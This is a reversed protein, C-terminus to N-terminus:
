VLRLHLRGHRWCRHYQDCGHFRRFVVCQDAYFRVTLGSAPQTITASTSATCGNADKVTVTYTGAALGTRDETDNVGAIDSWDYTYAGTGGAATIDIAGTSAGFCLVNTQTFTVSVAAAPQTITVATSATCSNADTVIVTYTGAALGTRDEADNIGALDSWDYTYVGTGGAATINIAGTSAGFCLVNTQTSGVTLGSAPQTITASTSATCGNADKVTVTYTGAALGTRDETDNIGAIDSWDYTYVGTGGAATINIAGTSAGFCLVNTQTSGVTLGSAPQTITASTSATCGNADKVTVTYTGAALGTRDETDNIGAIDSWDYTYAGTGGAATIDIAGTSAGFCLVNTQTFTVSVATAPQTITASTSATCGNADKVTVTYTGAALGTRDETDNVGAIDSWDYTYAGTGGAATIDIAGTSAGFCLVNTQTSTVSVATAPQTITVATSATCSNADTVIVTYTGAALGTRDETDNVGAIDAWDYTYVGTGGTASINISGTSAGFCLVNTQSVSISLGTAPQTITVSTSATCGNADKVTVTYTGATLGTRDETDNIGAIDTWDYTYAGTGGAATIDIAGTSAGLCLVNTQTFTVSVVLAPETVMVSVIASCGIADTVTVTYTGATLGALDQTDNDMAEPGDNSWDYTYPATGGTPTLDIAGSAGGKCAVNTVMTSLNLATNVTIIFTCSNSCGNPDTYSYTITNAGVSATAPNFMGASVGTGSYTGGAPLGGTLAFAPADFCVTSSAPCTVSIPQLTTNVNNLTNVTLVCFQSNTAEIPTPVGTVNVSVSGSSSLVKMTIKLLVTGNALDEGESGAPDFWAYTLQGNAVNMIGNAPGGGGIVTSDHSVYMLKTQDWNVSYQLSSIDTFGNTAEVFFMIQDGCTASAPGTATLTLPPLMGYSVVMIDSGPCAGNTTLTLTIPLTNGFPPTYFANLATANLSFTGGAISATWTGGAAGGGVTGALQITGNVCTMQDVGANATETAANVTITFTCTNSCNGDSYTYTITHVGLGASAPNFSGASVGPGSYTGGAPTAGTLVFSPTALCASMNAPCAVVPLANVTITFTCSNSCTGDSYTYTITHIGVGATAPNFNGGSVGPGSYTGGSPMGGTLAFAPM